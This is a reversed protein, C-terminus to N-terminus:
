GEKAAIARLLAEPLPSQKVVARLPRTTYITVNGDAHVDETHISWDVMGWLTRKVDDGLRPATPPLWLLDPDDHCFDCTWGGQFRVDIDGDPRLNFVFGHEKVNLSYDSRRNEM